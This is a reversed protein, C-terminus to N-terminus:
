ATGLHHKWLVACAVLAVIWFALVMFKHERPKPCDGSAGDLLWYSALVSGGVLLVAAQLSIPTMPKVKVALESKQNEHAWDALANRLPGSTFNQSSQFPPRFDPTLHKGSAGSGV